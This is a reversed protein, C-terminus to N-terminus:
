LLLYVLIVLGGIAVAEIWAGLPMSAGRMAGESHAPEQDANPM